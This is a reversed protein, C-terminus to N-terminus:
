ATEPMIPQVALLFYLAVSPSLTSICSRFYFLFAVFHPKQRGLRVVILSPPGLLLGLISAGSFNDRGLLHLSTFKNM